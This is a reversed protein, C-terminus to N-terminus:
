LNHTFIALLETTYDLSPYKSEHITYPSSEWIVTKKKKTKAKNSKKKIKKASKSTYYRNRIYAIGFSQINMDKVIKLQIFPVTFTSLVSLHQIDCIYPKNTWINKFLLIDNSITNDYITIEEHDFSVDTTSFVLVSIFHTDRRSLVGQCLLPKLLKMLHPSSHITLYVDNSFKNEAPLGESGFYREIDPFLSYYKYAWTNIPSGLVNTIFGYNERINRIYYHSLGIQFDTFLDLFDYRFLLCWILTNTDCFAHRIHDVKLKINNYIDEPITISRLSNYTLVISSQSGFRHQTKVTVCRGDYRCDTQFSSKKTFLCLEKNIKKLCKNISKIMHDTKIIKRNPLIVDDHNVFLPFIPDKRSRNRIIANILTWKPTTKEPEFVACLYKYCEKRKIELSPHIDDDM